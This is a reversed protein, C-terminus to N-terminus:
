FPRGRLLSRPYREYGKLLFGLFWQLQEFQFQQNFRKIESSRRM